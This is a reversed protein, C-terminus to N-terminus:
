STQDVGEASVNAPRGPAPASRSGPRAVRNGRLEHLASLGRSVSAADEVADWVRVGVDLEFSFGFPFLFFVNVCPVSESLYLVM